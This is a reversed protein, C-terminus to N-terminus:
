CRTACAKHPELYENSRGEADTLFLAAKRERKVLLVSRFESLGGDNSAGCETTKMVELRGTTTSSSMVAKRPVDRVVPVTVTFLV